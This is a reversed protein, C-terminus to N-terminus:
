RRGTTCWKTRSSNKSATPRPNKATGYAFLFSRALATGGGGKYPNKRVFVRYSGGEDHFFTAVYGFLRDIMKAAAPADFPPDSLWYM